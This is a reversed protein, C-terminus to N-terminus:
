RHTHTCARMCTHARTCIHPRVCTQQLEAMNIFIYYKYLCETFIFQLYYNYKDKEM